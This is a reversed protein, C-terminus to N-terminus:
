KIGIVAPAACNKVVVKGNVRLGGVNVISDVKKHIM